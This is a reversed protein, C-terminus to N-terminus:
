HYRRTEKSQCRENEFHRAPRDKSFHRFLECMNLRIAIVLTEDSVDTQINQM